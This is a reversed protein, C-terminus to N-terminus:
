GQRLAAVPTLRAARLSPLLTAAFATAALVLAVLAYAAPTMTIPGVQRELLLLLPTGLAIGLALGVLVQRASRRLFLTLIDAATAGLAMRTGIERVRQRVGLAILGYMGLAGLALAAFGFLAFLGSFVRLGAQRLDLDDAFTFTRRPHGEPDITRIAGLLVKELNPGTGTVFPFVSRLEESQALPTFFGPADPDPDAAGGMHLSPVVGVVLLSLPEANRRVLQFTRGVAGQGAWFRGAFRTDVIAVRPAGSGDGPTFPRGDLLRVGLADFYSLGVHAQYAREGDPSPQGPQVSVELGQSLGRRSSLGGRIGAPLEQLTRDLSAILSPVQAPPFEDRPFFVNAALYSRPDVRLARQARSAVTLAAGFAVFLVAASLGLQVVSLLSSTRTVRLGGTTRQDDRLVQALDLRSARVTPILASLLVAALSAGVVVLL